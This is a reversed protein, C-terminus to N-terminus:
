INKIKKFLCTRKIFGEGKTNKIQSYEKKLNELYIKSESINHELDFIENSKEQILRITEEIVEKCAGKDSSKIDTANDCMDTSRYGYNLLFNVLDEKKNPDNLNQSKIRKWGDEPIRKGNESHCNKKLTKVKKEMQEISKETDKIKNAIIIKKDDKDTTTTYMFRSFIPVIILLAIFIIEAALIYYVTKPTHRLENYLFKLQTSFICPIIFLLYFLVNILPNRKLINKFSVSGLM